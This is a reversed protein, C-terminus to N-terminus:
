KEKVKQALKKTSQRIVIESQILPPKKTIKGSKIMQELLRMAERGLSYQNQSISTLGPSVYASMAINDYGVIGVDEPIKIGSEMLAHMAGIATLDNHAVIGYPPKHSKMIQHAAKAGTTLGDKGYLVEFSTKGAGAKVGELRLSTQTKEYINAIYIIKPYGCEVLHASAMKGGEFDQSLLTPIKGDSKQLNVFIVHTNLNLIKKRHRAVMGDDSVIIGAARHSALFELYSSERDSNDDSNCLVLSYGLRQVEDEIGRVLEPYFPNQIDSIVLGILQTSKRRLSQAILSPTYDLEKIAAAIKERAQASVYGSGKLVRSVTATGVGALEAVDSITAENKQKM